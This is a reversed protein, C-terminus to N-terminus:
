RNWGLWQEPYQLVYSELLQAFQQAAAHVAQRASMATSIEIPAEVTVIWEGTSTQYPFVPLLSAQTSQALTPAGVALDLSGDLFVVQIPTKTTRHATISVVQNSRLQKALILLAQVANEQNFGIREALYRDEVATQIPNLYRQGFWSRSSFGHDLSSLHHVQFGAQHLAMKAILDNGIFHGIWLVAGRGSQQATAIYDQGQLQIVPQSYRPQYSALIELKSLIQESALGRLIREPPVSLRNGLLQQMQQLVQDPDDAISPVAQRSLRHSIGPWYQRPVTWAIATLVGIGLLLTM